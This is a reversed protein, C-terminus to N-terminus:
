LILKVSEETRDNSRLISNAKAQSEISSRYTYTMLLWFVSCLGWFLASLCFLNYALAEAKDFSSPILDAGKKGGLSSIMDGTLYGVLPAGLIAGASKELLIWLSVIQARESPNNALEACIPRNAAAPPWAAWIGFAIMWFIAGRFSTAYLFLGYLPIGGAVSVFAVYIRGHTPYFVNMYDGLAGGLYGGLTGALGKVFNICVIQEKSFGRWDLLLLMYSMMDWPTGGFVGQAVLCMFAPIRAIRKVIQGLTLQTKVKNGKGEEDDDGNLDFLQAKRKLQRRRTMTLQQRTVLCMVISFLGLVVYPYQWNDYYVISASAITGALNECLGLFGFARGRASAPVMDVLLTQSLPLLSALAVGNISRFAAQFTFSSGSAAIGLTAIGWSLCAGSLLNHVNEIGYIHM